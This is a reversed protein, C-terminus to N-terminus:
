CHFAVWFCRSSEHVVANWRHVDVVLLSDTAIRSYTIQGRVAMGLFFDTVMMKPGHHSALLRIARHERSFEDGHECSFWNTKINTV